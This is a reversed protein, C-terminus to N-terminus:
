EIPCASQKARWGRRLCCATSARAFLWNCVILHALKMMAGIARVRQMQEIGESNPAQWLYSCMSALIAGVIAVRQFTRAVILRFPFCCLMFWCRCTFGQQTKKEASFHSFCLSQNKTDISLHACASLSRKVDFFIAFVAHSLAVPTVGRV